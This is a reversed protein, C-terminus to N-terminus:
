KGYEKTYMFFNLEIKRLLNRYRFHMHFHNLSLMKYRLIWINRYHQRDFGVPSCRCAVRPAPLSGPRSAPGPGETL